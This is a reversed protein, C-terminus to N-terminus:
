LSPESLFGSKGLCHYTDTHYLSIDTKPYIDFYLCMENSLHRHIAEKRRFFFIWQWEFKKLNYILYALSSFKRLNDLSASTDFNPPSDTLRNKDASKGHFFLKHSLQCFTTLMYLHQALHHNNSVFNLYDDSHCFTRMASM